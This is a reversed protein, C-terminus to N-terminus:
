CETEQEDAGGTKTADGRSRKKTRGEPGAQGARSRQYCKETTETDSSRHVAQAHVRHLRVVRSRGDQPTQVRTGVRVEIRRSQQPM